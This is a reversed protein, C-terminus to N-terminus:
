VEEQQERVWRSYGDDMALELSKDFTSLHDRVIQLARAHTCPLGWEAVFDLVGDVEAAYVQEDVDWGFYIGRWNAAPTSLMLREVRDAREVRLRREIHPLISEAIRYQIACATAPLTANM